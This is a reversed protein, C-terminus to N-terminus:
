YTARVTLGAIHRMYDFTEVTSVNRVFHYDLEISLWPTANFGAVFGSSVRQDIRTTSSQRYFRGMYSLTGGFSFFSVRFRVFADAEPGMERQELGAANELQFGARVHAVVDNRAINLGAGGNLHLGDRDTVGPQNFTGTTFDRFGAGFYVGPQFIDAFIRRYEVVGAFDQMFHQLFGQLFVQSMYATVIFRNNMHVIDATFRPLIQAYDFLSLRSRNTLHIGGSMDVGLSLRAPGYTPQWAAGGSLALRLGGEDSPTADQILTVNSDYEASVNARVMWPKKSAPPPAPSDLLASLKQAEANNPDLALTQEVSAKADSKNKQEALLYGRLLNQEANKPTMSLFRQADQPQTTLRREWSVRALDFAFDLNSPALDSAKLLLARAEAFHLDSEELLGEAHAVEAADARETATLEAPQSSPEATLLAAIYVITYM